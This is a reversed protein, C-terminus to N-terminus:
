CAEELFGSFDVPWTLQRRQAGVARAEEWREPVCQCRTNIASEQQNTGWRTAFRVNLLSQTGPVARLAECTKIESLGNWM